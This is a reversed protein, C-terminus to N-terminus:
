KVNIYMPFLTFETETLIKMIEPEMVFPIIFGKKNLFGADKLMKLLVQRVKDYSQKSLNDIEPHTILRSNVFKEYDRADLTKQGNLYAEHLVNVAFDSIIEYTRCVAIWAIVNANSIDDGILCELEVPSLTKLRLIIESVFRKSTAETRCKLVNNDLAYKYVYDWDNNAIYLLAVERMLGTALGLATFSFRYKM